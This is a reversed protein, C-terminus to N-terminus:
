PTIIRALRFGNNSSRVSPGARYRNAGRAGSPDISWSGGRLVRESCNGVTWASGDSPAAAYGLNWCDEVWELVNGSMDHLGWANAKKGAVKHTKEGSNGDYWAVSEIDNGGCYSDHRGAQCVYEWEAESLLRYQQGSQMSLKRMFIQAHQWSVEDVPLDDRSSFWGGKFGSPNSEKGMVANWQGQTVETKGVAFIYDIEVEHEPSSASNQTSGMTFKGPPILVMEPCNPCDKFTKGDGPAIGQARFEVLAKENLAPQIIKREARKRQREEEALRAAEQAQRQREVDQKQLEARQKAEIRQQEALREAEIRQRAAQREAEQRRREAEREAAMRQREMELRRGEETLEMEGLRVDIRKVVGDGIRLDLNFARIHEPGMAKFVSLKHRGESVSLDLPCEGKFKGNISVEAGRADDDCAIRVLSEAAQAPNLSLLLACLSVLRISM